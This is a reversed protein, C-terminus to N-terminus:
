FVFREVFSRSIKSDKDALELLYDGRYGYELKLDHRQCFARSGVTCNGANTSDTFGYFKLLALKNKRKTIQKKGDLIQVALQSLKM